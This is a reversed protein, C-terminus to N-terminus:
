TYLGAGKVRNLGMGGEDHPMLQVVSGCSSEKSVLIQISDQVVYIIPLIEKSLLESGQYSM